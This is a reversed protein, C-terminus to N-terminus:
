ISEEDPQDEDEHEDVVHMLAGARARRLRRSELQMQALAARHEAIEAAYRQKSEFYLQRTSREEERARLLPAVTAACNRAAARDAGDKRSQTIDDSVGAGVVTIGTANESRDTAAEQMQQRHNDTNHPDGGALVRLTLQLPRGSRQFIQRGEASSLGIM